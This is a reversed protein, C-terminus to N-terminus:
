FTCILVHCIVFDVILLMHHTNDVFPRPNRWNIFYEAAFLYCYFTRFHKVLLFLDPIYGLFCRNCVSCRTRIVNKTFTGCSLRQAVVSLMFPHFTSLSIYQSSEFPVLLLTSMKANWEVACFSYTISGVILISFSILWDSSRDSVSEM